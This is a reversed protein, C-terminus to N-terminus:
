DDNQCHPPRVLDLGWERPSRPAGKRQTTWKRFLLACGLLDKKEKCTDQLSYSRSLYVGDKDVAKFLPFLTPDAGQMPAPTPPPRSVPPRQGFGGQFQGGPPPPSQFGGPPPSQFQNGPPPSQYQPRPPAQNFVPPRGAYQPNGYGGQTPRAPPPRNEYRNGSDGGMM